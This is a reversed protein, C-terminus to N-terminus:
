LNAKDNPSLAATLIGSNMNDAFVVPNLRVAEEGEGTWELGSFFLFRNELLPEKRRRKKILDM